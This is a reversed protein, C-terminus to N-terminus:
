MDDDHVLTPHVFTKIEDYLLEKLEERSINDKQLDFDFFEPPISACSPEDSPDHYAALYPHSLAEEVTM